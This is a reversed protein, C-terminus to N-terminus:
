ETVEEGAAPAQAAAGEGGAARDADQIADIGLSGAMQVARTRISAPVTEDQAIAAFIPGARDPRDLQLYAIAAMEGASGFWASGPQAIPRLRRIVEAPALSDFQLATQRVLAAHRYPEDFEENGAIEGLTAVAADIEDAAIQVNARAFLAAARYGEIDSEALRDIIPVAAAENGAQLNEVAQLLAQAQEVAREEQRNQWWMWGGLAGLLLVVAALLAWGYRSLFTNFRERRLEEDVERLFTEDEKPKIAM